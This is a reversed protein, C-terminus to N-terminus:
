SQQIFENLVKLHENLEPQQVKAPKISNQEREADHLGYHLNM